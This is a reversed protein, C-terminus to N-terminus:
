RADKENAVGISNKFANQYDEESVEEFWSTQGLSVASHIMFSNPSGGHWHQEGPPTQVVDGARLESRDGSRTTVMGRGRAVFLLQGGGHSHWYTRSGPSFFVSAVTIGDESPLVPDAWVDGTFTDKRRQSPGGSTSGRSVRM